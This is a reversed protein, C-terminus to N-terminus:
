KAGGMVSAWRVRRGRITRHRTLHKIEVEDEPLLHSVYEKGRLDLSADLRAMAARMEEAQEPRLLKSESKVITSKM